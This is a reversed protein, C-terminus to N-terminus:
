IASRQGFGHKNANLGRSRKFQRGPRIPVRNRQVENLLAKYLKNRRIPSTEIILCVLKDKLVGILINNNTKYEYKLDKDKQEKAIIVDSERKLLSAM